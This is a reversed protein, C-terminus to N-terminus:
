GCPGDPRAGVTSTIKEIESISTFTHTYRSLNFTDLIVVQPLQVHNVFVRHDFVIFGTHRSLSQQPVTCGNVRQIVYVGSTEVSAVTALVTRAIKVSLIYIREPTNM